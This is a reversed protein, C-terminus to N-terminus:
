DAVIRQREDYADCPRTDGVALSPAFIMAAFVARAHVAVHSVTRLASFKSRSCPVWSVSSRRSCRRARRLHLGVTQTSAGLRTLYVNYFPIVAASAVALLGGTVVFVAFDRRTEEDARAARPTWRRIAACGRNRASTGWEATGCGPSPFSPSPRSGSARLCPSAIRVSSGAAFAPMFATILRPALGGGLNGLTGSIAQVSYVVSIAHQRNQRTSTTSCSYTRRTLSTRM